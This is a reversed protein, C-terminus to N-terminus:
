YEGGRASLPRMPYTVPPMGLGIRASLPRRCDLGRGVFFAERELAFANIRQHVEREADLLRTLAQESTGEKTAGEQGEGVPALSEEMLAEQAFARYHYCRREREFRLRQYNAYSADSATPPVVPPKPVLAQNHTPSPSSSASDCMTSQLSAPDRYDLQAPATSSREAVLAALRDDTQRAQAQAQRVTAELAENQKRLEAMTNKMKEMQADRLENTEEVDKLQQLAQAKEDESAQLCMASFKRLRSLEEGQNDAQIELTSHRKVLDKNSAETEEANTVKRRLEEVEERAKKLQEHLLSSSPEEM